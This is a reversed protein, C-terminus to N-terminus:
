GSKVSVSKYDNKNTAMEDYKITSKASVSKYDNKNTTIEECKM